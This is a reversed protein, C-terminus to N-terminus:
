NKTLEEVDEKRMKNVRRADDFLRSLVLSSKNGLAGTDDDAFLREGKEDALCRVLLKAHMNRTDVKDEGVVISNEFDSKETGSMVRVYVTGGWEPVDVPEAPRDASEIIASKSLSNV